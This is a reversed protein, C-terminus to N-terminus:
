ETATNAGALEQELRAVKEAMMEAEQSLSALKGEAAEARANEAVSREAAAKEAAQTEKVAAQAADYDRQLGEAREDAARLM